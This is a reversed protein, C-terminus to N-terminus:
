SRKATWPTTGRCSLSGAVVEVDITGSAKKGSFRGKMVIRFDKSGDVLEFRGKSSIPASKKPAFPIYNIQGNNCTYYVGTRVQSVRNKAVKFTLPITNAKGKYTGSTAAAVPAVPAGAIAAGAMATAAVRVSRRKM